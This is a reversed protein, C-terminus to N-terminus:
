AKRRCLVVHGAFLVACAQVEVPAERHFSKQKRRFMVAGQPAKEFRHPCAIFVLQDQLRRRCALVILVGRPKAASSASPAAGHVAPSAGAQSCLRALAGSGLYESSVSAIRSSSSCTTITLSFPSVFVM